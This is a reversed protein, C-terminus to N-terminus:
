MKRPKPVEEKCDPCYWYKFTTYIVERANPHLCIFPLTIEDDFDKLIDNIQQNIDTEFSIDIDVPGNPGMPIPNAISGLPASPDKPKSM